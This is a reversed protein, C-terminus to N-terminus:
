VRPTMASRQGCRAACTGERWSERWRKHLTTLRVSKEVGELVEMMTKGGRRDVVGGGGPRAMIRPGGNARWKSRAPLTRQQQTCVKCVFVHACEYLFACAYAGCWTASQPSLISPLHLSPTQPPSLYTPCLTHIFYIYNFVASILSPSSIRIIVTPFFTITITNKLVIKSSLRQMEPIIGFSLESQGLAGESAAM